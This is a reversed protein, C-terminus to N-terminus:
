KVSFAIPTYSLIFASIGKFGAAGITSTFFSGTM